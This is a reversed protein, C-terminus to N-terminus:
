AKMSILKTWITSMTKLFQDHYAELMLYLNYYIMQFVWKQTFSKFRTRKNAGNSNKNRRTAM